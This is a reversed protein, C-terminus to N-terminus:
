IAFERSGSSCPGESRCNSMPPMATASTIVSVMAVRSSFDVPRSSLYTRTTASRTFTPSPRGLLESTLYWPNSTPRTVLTVGAMPPLGLKTCM